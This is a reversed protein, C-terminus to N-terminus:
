FLLKANIFILIVACIIAVFSIALYYFYDRRELMKSMGTELTTFTSDVEKEYFKFLKKWNILYLILSSVLSTVLIIVIATDFNSNSM